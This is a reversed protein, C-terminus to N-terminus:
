SNKLTQLLRLLEYDDEANTLVNVNELKAFFIEFLSFHHKNSGTKKEVVVFPKVQICNPQNTYFVSNQDDLIFTEEVNWNQKECVYQLDKQTGFQDECEKYENYTFVFEPYLKYKHFFNHVVFTALDLSNATWIGVKYKAFLEFLFDKIHPRFIITYYTKYNLKHNFSFLEPHNQVLDYPVSHFLTHDFDLVINKIMIYV